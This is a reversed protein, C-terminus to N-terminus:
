ADRPLELFYPKFKFCSHLRRAMREREAKRKKRSFRGLRAATEIIIREAREVDIEPVIGVQIRLTTAM